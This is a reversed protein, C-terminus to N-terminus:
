QVLLGCQVATDARGAAFWAWGACREPVRPPQTHWAFVRAHNLTLPRRPNNSRAAHIINHENFSLHRSRCIMGGFINYLFFSPDITIVVSCSPPVQVDVKTTCTSHEGSSHRQARAVCERDADSGGVWCRRYLKEGCTIHSM